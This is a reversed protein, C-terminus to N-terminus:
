REIGTVFTAPNECVPKPKRGAADADAVIEPLGRKASSPGTSASDRAM